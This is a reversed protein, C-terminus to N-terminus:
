NGVPYAVNVEYYYNGGSFAWPSRVLGTTAEIVGPMNTKQNADLVVFSFTTNTTPICGPPMTFIGTNASITGTNLFEANFYVVGKYKKVGWWSITMGTAMTPVGIVSISATDPTANTSGDM